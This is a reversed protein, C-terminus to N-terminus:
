QADGRGKEYRQEDAGLTRVADGTFKLLLAKQDESLRATATLVKDKIHIEIDATKDVQKWSVGGGFMSRYSGSADANLTLTALYGGMTWSGLFPSQAPIDYQKLFDAHRGNVDLLRLSAIQSQSAAIDSATEGAKNKLAPDCGAKLLKELFDPRIGAKVAGILITDGGTDADAGNFSMNLQKLRALLHDFVSPWRDAPVEGYQAAGFLTEFLWCVEDKGLKPSADFVKDLVVPNPQLLARSVELYGVKANAKILLDIMDLNGNQIAIVLPADAASNTNPDAGQHLLTKLKDIQNARVAARLDDSLTREPVTIATEKKTQRDTKSLQVPGSEILKFGEMSIEFTMEWRGHYDVVNVAKGDRLDYATSVVEMVSTLQNDGLWRSSIFQGDSRQMSRSSPELRQILDNVEDIKGQTGEVPSFSKSIVFQPLPKDTPFMPVPPRLTVLKEVIYTANRADIFCFEAEKSAWMGKFPPTLPDKLVADWRENAPVVSKDDKVTTVKLLGSEFRAVYIGDPSIWQGSSNDSAGDAFNNALALAIGVLCCVLAKLNSPM